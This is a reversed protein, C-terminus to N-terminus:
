QIKPTTEPQFQHIYEEDYIDPWAESMELTKLQNYQQWLEYFNSKCIYLCFLNESDLTWKLCALLRAFPNKFSDLKYISIFCLKDSRLFKARM